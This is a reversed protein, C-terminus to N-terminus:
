SREREPFVWFRQGLFLCLGFVVILIGQVLEHPLEMGDVLLVLLVMNLVYATAYLAAYRVFTPTRPGSDGFTWSRNLLFSVSVGAIWGITAAVLPQLGIAVSLMLYLVYLLANSAIGVTAFRAFVRLDHPIMARTTM